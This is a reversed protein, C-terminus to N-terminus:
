LEVLNTLRLDLREYSNCIIVNCDRSNCSAIINFQKKMKIYSGYKSIISIRNEVDFMSLHFDNHNRLWHQLYYSNKNTLLNQVMIEITSNNTHALVNMKCKLCEFEFISFINKLCPISDKNKSYLRCGLKSQPQHAWIINNSYKNFIKIMKSTM